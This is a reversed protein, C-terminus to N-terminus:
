SISGGQAAYLEGGSDGQDRFQTVERAEPVGLLQHTVQSEDRTFVGRPLAAALPTDGLRPVGMGTAGEDLPSPRIPVGSLDAAVQLEPQFFDGFGKLINTPLGLHSETLAVPPQDSPAFIGILDHDSDCPFRRGEHPGDGALNAPGHIVPYSCFSRAITLTTCSSARIARLSLASRVAM